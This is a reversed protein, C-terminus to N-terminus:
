KLWTLKEPVTLTDTVNLWEEYWKKLEETQETTLMSYWLQGRNIVPFCETERLMRLNNKDMELKTEDSYPEFIPMNNEDNVIHGGINICQEILSDALEDAIEVCYPLISENPSNLYLTCYRSDWYKKDPIIEEVEEVEVEVVEEVEEISDTEKVSTTVEEKNM